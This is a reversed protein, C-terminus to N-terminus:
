LLLHKKIFGTIKDFAELTEPWKYNFGIGQFVHCMGDWTQLEAVVGAAKAKEVLRKSDDFLQEVPTAQVLLPPLGAMSAFLPSVDPAALDLGPEIARMLQDLMTFSGDLGFMVDSPMNDYFTKGSYTLDLWPSLCFAAAPLPKKEDRLRTILRMTLLGGASDGGVVVNGPKIGTSLLWTYAAMVDDIHAPHKYEPFLRYDVSLVRVNARRGFEVTMPRYNAVSHMILGGGHIYFLVKDAPAGPVVQWEAKAGNADVPELKTGEPYTYKRNEIHQIADAIYRKLKLGLLMSETSFSVGITGADLSRLKYASEGAIKMQNMLPLLKFVNIRKKMCCLLAHKMFRKADMKFYELVHPQLKSEELQIVM